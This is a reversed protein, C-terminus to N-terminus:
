IGLQWTVGILIAVGGLVFGLVGRRFLRLNDYAELTWGIYTVALACLVTLATYHITLTAVM